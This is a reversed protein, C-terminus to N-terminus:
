SRDSSSGRRARRRRRAHGRVVRREGLPELPQAVAALGIAVLVDFEAHVRPEVLHLRRDQARPQRQQGAPGLPAAREARAVARREGAGGRHVHRRLAVGAVDIVQKRHQAPRAVRNAADDPPLRADLRQDVIRDRDWALAARAAVGSAHGTASRTQARPRRAAAGDMARAPRRNSRTAAATRAQATAAGSWQGNGRDINVM